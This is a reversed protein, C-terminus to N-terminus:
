AADSASGGEFQANEWAVVDSLRYRCYRGIQAYRPGKQPSRAAWAALTKVPVKLRAALEERTLWDDGNMLASTEMGAELRLERHLVNAKM